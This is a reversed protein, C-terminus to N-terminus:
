LTQMVLNNFDNYGVAWPLLTSSITGKKMIVEDSSTSSINAIRCLCSARPGIKDAINDKSMLTKEVCRWKSFPGTKQIQLCRGCWKPNVTM